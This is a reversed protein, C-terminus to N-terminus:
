EPGAVRLSTDDREDFIEKSDDDDLIEDEPDDLNDEDDDWCDLNNDRGDEENAYVSFKSRTSFM